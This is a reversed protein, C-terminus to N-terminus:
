YVEFLEKWEEHYVKVAEKLTEKEEDTLDPNIFNRLPNPSRREIWSRVRGEWNETKQMAFSGSSIMFGAGLVVWLTTYILKTKKM